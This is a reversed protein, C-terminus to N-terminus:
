VFQSADRRVYRIFIAIVLSLVFYFGWWIAIVMFTGLGTAGPVSSPGAINSDIGSLPGTLVPLGIRQLWGLVILLIM